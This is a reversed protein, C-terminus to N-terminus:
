FKVTAQISHLSVHSPANTSIIPPDSSGSHDSWSATGGQVVRVDLAAQGSNGAMDTCTYIAKYTGPTDPDIASRNIVPIPSVPGSDNDDCSGAPLEYQGDGEAIQISPPDITLTPDVRDFNAVHLGSSLNPNGSLDEVRDAAM